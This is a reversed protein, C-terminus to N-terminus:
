SGAELVRKAAAVNVLRRMHQAEARLAARGRQTIRYYRRRPDDDAPDPARSTEVIQGDEVLRKLMTYLTGPGLRVAGDTRAEVDDVIGLGHRPQDALALLILFASRSLTPVDSRGM